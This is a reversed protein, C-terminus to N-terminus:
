KFALNRIDDTTAGERALVKRALEMLGIEAAGTCAGEDHKSEMWRARGHMHDGPTFWMHVRTEILPHLVEAIRARTGEPRTEPDGRLLELAESLDHHDGQYQRPPFNVM